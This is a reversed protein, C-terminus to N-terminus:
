FCLDKPFVTIRKRVYRKRHVSYYRAKIIIADRISITLKFPNEEKQIYKDTYDKMFRIQENPYLELCDLLSVSYLFPADKCLMLSDKEIKFIEWYLSYLTSGPKPFLERIERVIFKGDDTLFFKNDRYSYLYTDNPSVEYNNIEHYNGDEEQLLYIIQKDVEQFNAILSDRNKCFFSAGYCEYKNCMKPKVIIAYKRNHSYVTDICLENNSPFIAMLPNGILYVLIIILLIRKMM